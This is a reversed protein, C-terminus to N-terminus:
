VSHSWSGTCVEAGNEIKAWWAHETMIQYHMHTHSQAASVCIFRPNEDSSGDFIPVLSPKIIGTGSSLVLSPCLEPSDAFRPCLTVTNPKVKGSVPELM